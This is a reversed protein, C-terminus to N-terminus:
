ASMEPMSIELITSPQTNIFRSARRMSHRSSGRSRSRTFRWHSVHPQQNEGLKTGSLSDCHWQCEAPFVRSDKQWRSPSVPGRIFEIEHQRMLQRMDLATIVQNTDGRSEVFRQIPEMRETPPEVLAQRFKTFVQAVIGRQRSNRRLAFSIRLNQAIEGAQESM